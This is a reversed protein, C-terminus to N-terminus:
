ALNFHETIQKDSCAPTGADDLDQKQNRAIIRKSQNFSVNSLSRLPIELQTDKKREAFKVINNALHQLKDLTAADKKSRKVPEKKSMTPMM